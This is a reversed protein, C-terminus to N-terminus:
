EVGICFFSAISNTFSTGTLVGSGLDSGAVPRREAGATVSIV